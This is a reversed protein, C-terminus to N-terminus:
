QHVRLSFRPFVYLFLNALEAFIKLFVNLGDQAAVVVIEGFSLAPSDLLFFRYFAYLAPFAAHHARCSRCCWWHPRRVFSSCKLARLQYKIRGKFTLFFAFDRTKTARSKKQRRRPVGAEDTIKGPVGKHYHNTSTSHICYLSPVIPRIKARFSSVPSRGGSETASKARSCATRFAITINTPPAPAVLRRTTPGSSFLPSSMIGM